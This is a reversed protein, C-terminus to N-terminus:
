ADCQWPSINCSYKRITAASVIANIKRLLWQDSAIQM